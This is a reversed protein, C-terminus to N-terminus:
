GGAGVLEGAGLLCQRVLLRCRCAALCDLLCAPLVWMGGTADDEEEECGSGDVSGASGSYYWEDTQARQRRARRAQEQSLPAPGAAAAVAAAPATAAALPAAVPVAPVAAMAPAARPVKAPGAAAAAATASASHPLLRPPQALLNPLGAPRQKPPPGAAAAAAAASAGHPLLRPPQALLNPLGAPWQNPAPGAAPLALHHTTLLLPLPVGLVVAAGPNIAPRGRLVPVGVVVARAPAAAPQAAAPAPAASPVASANEAPHQSRWHGQRPAVGPEGFDLFLPTPLAQHQSLPTGLIAPLLGVPTAPVGPRAHPTTTGGPWGCDAAELPSGLQRLDVLPPLQMAALWRGEESSPAPHRQAPSLPQPHQQGLPHQGGAAQLQVGARQSQGATAELGGLQRLVAEAGSQTTGAPSSASTGGASAANVLARPPGETARQGQLGRRPRQSAGNQSGLEAEEAGRKGSSRPGSGNQGNENSRRRLVKHRLMM